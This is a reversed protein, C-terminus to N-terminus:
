DKTQKKAKVAQKGGLYKAAAHGLLVLIVIIGMQIAELILNILAAIVFVGLPDTTYSQWTAAATRLIFDIIWFLVGFGIAIKFNDTFSAGLRRQSNFGIWVLIVICSLGFLDVLGVTNTINDTQTSLLLYVALLLLVSKKQPALYKDVFEM